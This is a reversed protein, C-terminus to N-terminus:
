LIEKQAARTISDHPGNKTAVGERQSTWGFLPDAEIRWRVPKVQLPYDALVRAIEERSNVPIQQLLVYEGPPRIDTLSGNIWFVSLCYHTEPEILGPCKGQPGWVKLLNELVVNKLITLEVLPAPWIEVLFWSDHNRGLGVTGYGELGNLPWGSLEPLTGYVDEYVNTIEADDDEPVEVTCEKPKPEATLRLAEKFHAVPQVNSEIEERRDAVRMYAQATRVAGDFNNELWPIWTGHECQAKAKTLLEGARYAHALGANLSQEAERHAQNIDEALQDLTTSIAKSM